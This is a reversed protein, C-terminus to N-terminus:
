FHLLGEKGRLKQINQLFGIDISEPLILRWKSDTGQCFGEGVELELKRAVFCRSGGSRGNGALNPSRVAAMKSAKLNVLGVDSLPGSRAFGAGFFRRRSERGDKKAREARATRGSSVSLAGRNLTM